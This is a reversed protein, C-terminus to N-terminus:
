KRPKKPKNQKEIYIDLAANAESIEEYDMNSADTYGIGGDLILRWFEWNNKAKSKM